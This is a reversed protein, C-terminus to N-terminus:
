STSIFISGAMVRHCGKLSITTKDIGLGIHVLDDTKGTILPCDDLVLKEINKEDFKSIDELSGEIRRCATLDITTLRLERLAELKGTVNRCGDLILVKFPNNKRDQSDNM